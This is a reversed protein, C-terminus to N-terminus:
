VELNKQKLWLKANDRNVAWKVGRAGKNPISYFLAGGVKDSSVDSSICHKNYASQVTHEFKKPMPLKKPERLQWVRYIADIRALGNPYPWLVQMLHFCYPNFADKEEFERLTKLFWDDDDDTM